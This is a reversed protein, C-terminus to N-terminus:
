MTWCNREWANVLSLKFSINVFIQGCINVAFAFVEWIDWEHISLGFATHVTVRALRAFTASLAIFQACFPM